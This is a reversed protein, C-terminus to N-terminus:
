SVRISNPWLLNNLANPMTYKERVYFYVCCKLGVCLICLNIHPTFVNSTYFIERYKCSSSKFLAM